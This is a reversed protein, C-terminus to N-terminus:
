ARFWAYMYYMYCSLFQDKHIMYIAFFQLRRRRCSKKRRKVPVTHHKILLLKKARSMDSFGRLEAHDNECGHWSRFHEELLDRVIRSSEIKRTRILCQYMISAYNEAYDAEFLM